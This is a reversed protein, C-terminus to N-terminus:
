GANQIQKITQWLDKKSYSKDGINFVPINNKKALSIATATGGKIEGNETYCVMLDSPKDLRKGLVQHCNRAHLDQADNKCKSWAPHISAAMKYAEISPSCLLSKNGNFNRWPLYIEKQNPHNSFGDEAASDAGKAGGSRLIWGKKALYLAISTLQELAWPPTERSGVITVIPM